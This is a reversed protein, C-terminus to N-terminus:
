DQGDSNGDTDLPGFRGLSWRCPGLSDRYVLKRRLFRSHRSNYRCAKPCNRDGNRPRRRAGARPCRRTSGGGVSAPDSRRRCRGLASGAPVPSRSPCRCIRSDRGWPIWLTWPTTWLIGGSFGQRRRGWLGPTGTGTSRAEPRGKGPRESASAPPGQRQGERWGAPEHFPWLRGSSTSCSAAYKRAASCSCWCM